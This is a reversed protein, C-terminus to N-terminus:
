NLAQIQNKAYKANMFHLIQSFKRLSFIFYLLILNNYESISYQQYDFWLQLQDM